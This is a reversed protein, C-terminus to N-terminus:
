ETGMDFFWFDNVVSDLGPTSQESGGNRVVIRIQEGAAASEIYGAMQYRCYESLPHDVIRVRTRELGALVNAAVDRLYGSTRVSREPRARGDRWAEIREAEGSVAYAPLAELRFASSRFRSFCEDLIDGSVAARIGLRAAASDPHLSHRRSRTGQRGSGPRGRGAPSGTSRNAGPRGDGVAGSMDQGRLRRRDEEHHAGDLGGQTIRSSAHEGMTTVGHESTLPLGQPDTHM